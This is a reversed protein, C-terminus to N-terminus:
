CSMLTFLILKSLFNFSIFPSQFSIFPFSLVQLPLPFYCDVLLFCYSNFPFLLFKFPFPFSMFPFLIVWCMWNTFVLVGGEGFFFFRLRGGGVQLSLRNVRHGHKVEHVKRAFSTVYSTSAFLLRPKPKLLGFFLPFDDTEKALLVAIKPQDFHIFHRFFQWLLCSFNVCFWSLPGFIIM